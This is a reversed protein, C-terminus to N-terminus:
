GKKKPHKMKEWPFPLLILFGLLLLPFFEGAANYVTTANRLEVTAIGHGIEDPEVLIQANGYADIVGSLGTNGTRVVSRGNEVARLIAHRFHLSKAFSGDFWSDDTSLLILEAGDKVSARALAPYISDFCILGGFTGKETYFLETGEGPTTNRSLMSIETLAPILREFLWAMPVYEGFPVPRRKKYTPDKQTGDPHFLMLVNYYGDEGEPTPEDSFTGVFQMAGSKVAVDAFFNYAYEDIQVAYTLVSEAWLMLDVDEEEAAKLAEHRCTRLHADVYTDETAPANGQLLAVTVTRTEEKRTALRLAGFSLNSVFLAIACLICLLASKDKCERFAIYGEALAANCFMIFFVLFSAGLISASQLLIPSSAISVATNAWPVGAWTFNQAYAFLTYLASFALSFALPFRLVGKKKLLFVLLVSFASFWAQFLPLLVVAAFIVVVSELTGLGAFDLPYMATFFSFSVMYYGLFFFLGSLYYFRLRTDEKRTLLFLLYPIFLVFSLYSIGDFLLPLAALFGALLSFLCATLTNKKM